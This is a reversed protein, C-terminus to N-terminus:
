IILNQLLRFYIAVFYSFDLGKHALNGSKKERSATFFRRGDDCFKQKSIKCKM